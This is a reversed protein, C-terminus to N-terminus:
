NSKTPSLRLGKVWRPNKMTNQEANEHLCHLLNKHHEPLNTWSVFIKQCTEQVM